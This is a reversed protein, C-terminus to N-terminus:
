DEVQVFKEQFNSMKEGCRAQIGVQGDFCPMPGKRVFEWTDGFDHILRKMRGNLPLLKVKAM